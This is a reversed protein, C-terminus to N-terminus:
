KEGCDICVVDGNDGILFYTNVGLVGNKFTEVKM